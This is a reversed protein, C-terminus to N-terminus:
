DPFIELYIVKVYNKLSYRLTKVVKLFYGYSQKKNQIIIEKKGDKSISNDSRILSELERVSLNTTKILELYKDSLSQDVGILARAHGFSIEFNNLANLVNKIM